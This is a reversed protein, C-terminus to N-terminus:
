GKEHPSRVNCAVPEFGCHGAFDAYRPNFQVHGHRGHNLVACKCNDVIMRRPVGGFVNFANAQCALFHEMRECPMFEAYMLRSHCLVIMCVSLRRMTDGCPVLGCCGFDIQAAEGPDFSLALYAKSQRPRMGAVHRRVTVYGGEYGEEVLRQYIQMSTYPHEAVLKDVMPKFADLIGSPTRPQRGGFESESLWRRVTKVCLKLRRAIQGDDLGNVTHLRHIEWFTERSIM